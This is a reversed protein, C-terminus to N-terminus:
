SDNFDHSLKEKLTHIFLPITSFKGHGQNDVDWPQGEFASWGKVNTSQLDEHTVDYGSDCICISIRSVHEDSVELARVMAIGYPTTEGDEGLVDEFGDEFTGSSRITTANTPSKYIPKNDSVDKVDSRKKFDEAEKTTLELELFNAHQFVHKVHDIQSLKRQSPQNTMQVIYRNTVEERGNVSVLVSGSFSLWCLAASFCAFSKM